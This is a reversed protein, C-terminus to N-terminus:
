RYKRILSVVKGYILLEGKPYINPYDKNAPVLVVEKKDKKFYKLTFENDVSAVVVDGSRPEKVKEIVVIDGDEIGADVMSDGTVKLLFSSDPDNVVYEDISLVDVLDEAEPSPFGAPVGGLFPLSVGFKKPILKGKSDKEVIGKDILKKVLEYSANKSAFGFMDAIEQYSPMRKYAKFFKRFEKIAKSVEMDSIIISRDNM